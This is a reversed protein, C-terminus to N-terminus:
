LREKNREAWKLVGPYINRTSEMDYSPKPREYSYYEFMNVIDEAAPNNPQKCFQESSVQLYM